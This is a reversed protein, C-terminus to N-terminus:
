VEGSPGHPAVAARKTNATEFIGQIRESRSARQAVRMDKLQMGSNLWRQRFMLGTPKLDPLDFLYLSAAARSDAM